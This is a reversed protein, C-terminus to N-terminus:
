RCMLGLAFFFIFHFMSKKLYFPRKGKKVKEWEEQQKERLVEAARDKAKRSDKRSKLSHLAKKLGEQDEENKSAKIQQKLLAM